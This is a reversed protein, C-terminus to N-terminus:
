GPQRGLRVPDRLRLLMTLAWLGTGLALAAVIWFLAGIGTQALVLGLILPGIAAALQCAAIMASSLRPDPGLRNAGWVYATPFLTGVPFGALVFGPGAVGGAALVCLGVTGALSALFLWGPGFWRSLWYLSLRGGLFLVFFGSTLKAAALEQTGLEILASPGLGFMAVELLVAFFLFILAPSQRLSLLRAGAQGSLGRGSPQVVAILALALVAVLVFVARPSGGAWVFLIPSTVAGIGYVSNVLGVMAPGRSGFEQLFRRNVIATMLGFGMGMAVAGALVLSWAPEFAVLAAGGGILSLSLRWNLWRPGAIGVLVIALAGFGHASLLWGAEAEALAFARTYHPLSVGYLAPLLGILVFSLIGAAFLRTPNTTDPDTM